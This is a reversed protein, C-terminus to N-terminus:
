PLPIEKFNSRDTQPWTVAELKNYSPAYIMVAYCKDTYVCTYELGTVDPNLYNYARGVEFALPKVLRFNSAQEAAYSVVKGHLSVAVFIWERQQNDLLTSIVERTGNPPNGVSSSSDWEIQDGPAFKTM